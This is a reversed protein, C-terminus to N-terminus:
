APTAAGRRVANPPPPTRAPVPGIISTSPSSCPNPPCVTSSRGAQRTPVPSCQRTTPRDPKRFSCGAAGGRPVRPAGRPPPGPRPAPDRRGQSRRGRGSGPATSRAAAGTRGGERCASRTELVDPEGAAEGPQGLVPRAAPLHELVEPHGIEAAGTRRRERVPLRLPHREGPRHDVPRRDDEGVLRGGGEVVLTARPDGREDLRFGCPVSGGEDHRGVVRAQAAAELPAEREVGRVPIRDRHVREEEAKARDRAPRQRGHQGHEEEHEPDRRHDNQQEELARELVPQPAVRAADVEHHPGLPAAQLEHEGGHEVDVHRGPVDTEPSRRSM